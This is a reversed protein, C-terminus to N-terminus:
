RLQNLHQVQDFGRADGIMLNNKVIDLYRDRADEEDWSSIEVVQGDLLFIIYYNM